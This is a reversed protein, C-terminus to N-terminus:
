CFSLQPQLACRAARINTVNDRLLEEITERRQLLLRDTPAERLRLELDILEARLTTALSDLVIIQLTYQQRALSDLKDNVETQISAIQVDRDAARANLLERTWGRSALIWPELVSLAGAAQALLIIVGLVGTVVSWRVPIKWEEAM